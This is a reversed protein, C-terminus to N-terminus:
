WLYGPRAPPHKAFVRLGLGKGGGTVQVPAGLPQRADGDLEPATNDIHITFTATHEEPEVDALIFPALPEPTTPKSDDGGCGGGLAATALLIWPAGMLGIRRMKM